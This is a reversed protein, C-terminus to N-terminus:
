KKNSPESNSVSVWGRLNFESPDAAVLKATAHSARLGFKTHAIFRPLSAWASTACVVMTLMLFVTGVIVGSNCLTWGASAMVFASYIWFSWGLLGNRLKGVGWSELKNFWLLSCLIFVIMSLTSPMAIVPLFGNILEVAKTALIMPLNIITWFMDWVSGLTAFLKDMADVTEGIKTIAMM